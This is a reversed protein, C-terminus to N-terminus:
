PWAQGSFWSPCPGLLILLREDALRGRGRVYAACCGGEKKLCTAGIAKPPAEEFGDQAAASSQTSRVPKREAVWRRSVGFTRRLLPDCAGANLWLPM